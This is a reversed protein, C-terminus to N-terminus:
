YGPMDYLGGANVVDTFGASKLMRAAFASRAGTACYLIIPEGKGGLESLRRSIQDIPINVANPFHEESFEEKTRVDIVKAGAKIKSELSSM